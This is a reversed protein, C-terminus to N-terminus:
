PLSTGDFPNIYASPNIVTTAACLREVGNDVFVKIVVHLHAVGGTQGVAASYQGILTGSAIYEGFNTNTSLTSDLHTYQYEWIQYVGNFLVRKRLSITGSGQQTIPDYDYYCFMGDGGQLLSTTYVSQSTTSTLDIGCHRNDSPSIESCPDPECRSNACGNETDGWTAITTITGQLITSSPSGTRCSVRQGSTCTPLSGTGIQVLTEIKDRACNATSFRYLDNVNGRVRAWGTKTMSGTVYEIQAYERNPHIAMVAITSGSILQDQVTIIASPNNALIAIDSASSLVEADQSLTTYCWSPNQTPTANIINVSQTAPGFMVGNANPFSFPAGIITYAGPTTIPASQYPSTNDVAQVTGNITFRV